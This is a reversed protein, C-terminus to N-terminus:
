WRRGPRRRSRAVGAAPLGPGCGLDAVKWGPAVGLRDLFGATVAGWVEQQFGLRELESRDTGLVYESM